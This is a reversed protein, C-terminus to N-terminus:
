ALACEYTLVLEMVSTESSLLTPMARALAEPRGTTM